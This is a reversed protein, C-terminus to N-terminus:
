SRRLRAIFLLKWTRSWEYEQIGVYGLIDWVDKCVGTHGWIGRCMGRDLAM